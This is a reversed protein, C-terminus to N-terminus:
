LATTYPSISSPMQDLPIANATKIPRPLTPSLDYETLQAQARYPNECLYYLRRSASDIQVISCVSNTNWNPPQQLRGLLRLGSRGAAGAPSPAEVALGLVVLFVGVACLVRRVPPAVVPRNSGM